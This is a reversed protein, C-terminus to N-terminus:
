LYIKSCYTISYALERAEEDFDPVTDKIYSWFGEDNLIKEWFVLAFQNEDKFSDPPYIAQERPFIWDYCYEILSARVREFVRHSVQKNFIAYDYHLNPNNCFIRYSTSKLGKCFYLHHSDSCKDVFLCNDIQSSDTAYSVQECNHSNYVFNSNDIRKCNVIKDSSTVSTSNYVNTSRDVDSSNFIRSSSTVDTSKEVETSNECYSSEYIKHCNTIHHSTYFTDCDVIKAWNLYEAKDSESFPLNHYGWGCFHMPIHRVVKTMVEKPTFGNPYHKRLFNVGEKCGGKWACLDATIVLSDDRYEIKPKEMMAM